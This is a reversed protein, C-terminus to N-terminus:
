CKRWFDIVPFVPVPFGDDRRICARQVVFLPFSRQCYLIYQWRLHIAIYSSVVVEVSFLSQGVHYRKMYLSKVVINDKTNRNQYKNVQDDWKRSLIKSWFIIICFARVSESTLIKIDKCDWRMNREKQTWYIQTWYIQTRRIWARVFATNPIAVM